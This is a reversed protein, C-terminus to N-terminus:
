KKNEERIFQEYRKLEEAEAESLADFLELRCLERYRSSVAYVVDYMYESNYAGCCHEVIDNGDKYRFVYCQGYDDLGIDVEVGDIIVTRYYCDM